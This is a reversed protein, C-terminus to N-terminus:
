PRGSTIRGLCGGGITGELTRTGAMYKSARVNTGLSFLVFLCVVIMIITQM